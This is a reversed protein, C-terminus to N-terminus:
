KFSVLKGLGLDLHLAIMYYLKQKLYALRNPKLFEFTKKSNKILLVHNVIRYLMEIFFFIFTTDRM